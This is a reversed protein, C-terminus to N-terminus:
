MADKHCRCLAKHGSSARSNGANKEGGSGVRDGARSLVEGEEATDWEEEDLWGRPCGRARQPM